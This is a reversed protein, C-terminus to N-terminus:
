QIMELAGQIESRAHEDGKKLAAEIGERYASRAAEVDGALEHVQGRQYYAYCYGADAQVTRQLYELAKALDGAKKYEMGLGYLLFPDNGQKELLAELKKVRESEQQAM